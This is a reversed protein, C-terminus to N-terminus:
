YGFHILASLYHLKHQFKLKLNPLQGVLKRDFQTEERATVLIDYPALLKAAEENAVRRAFVDTEISPPLSSWDAAERALDQYDNIIALKM